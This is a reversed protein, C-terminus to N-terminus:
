RAKFGGPPLTPPIAYGVPLKGTLTDLFDVMSDVQQDSLKQGIQLDSMLRIAQSLTEVSGDHFYPPTMSVNRLGPVKFVYLDAPDNTVNFRGKDVKSSGTLEWYDGFIGFKRFERGGLTIGGHCSVCGTALFETLGAVAGVSLMKAAGRLYNDFPAPTVLTREYAGIAKGCNQQTVPDKESPFAMAFMKEYGPVAKIKAKVSSFDLNGFSAPGLLSMAAQDEVSTRDGYWHASFQLAANLITPANRPNPRNEVGVSKPLADTGYLSPQHCRACSVTGDVSLRPDFFLARGLEVLEPTMPFEQTATEESLPQFFRRAKVLLSDESQVNSPVLIHILLVIGLLTLASFSQCKSGSLRCAMM